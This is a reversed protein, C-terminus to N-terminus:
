ANQLGGALLLILAAITSAGLITGIIVVLIALASLGLSGFGHLVNIFNALVWLELLLVAWQLAPAWEPLLAEFPMRILALAIVIGELWVVLLLAGEFSGTGGLMRGALDVGFVMMVLAAGVILVFAFPSFSVMQEGVPMALVPGPPLAMTLTNLIAVLAIAPWLHTRGIRLALLLRAAEAPNRLTLLMLRALGAIEAGIM